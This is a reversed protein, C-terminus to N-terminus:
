KIISSHKFKHQLINWEVLFDVCIIYPKTLIQNTLTIPNRTYSIVNWITNRKFNLM